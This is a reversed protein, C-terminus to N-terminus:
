PVLRFITGSDHVGGLYAPGYLAGDSGQVLGTGPWYGDNRGRFNRLKTFAGTSTVKFLTGCGGAFCRGVYGGQSAVGYM